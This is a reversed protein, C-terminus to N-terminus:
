TKRKGASEVAAAAARGLEADKQRSGPSSGFFFGNAQQANSMLWQVAAGVVSGVTAALGADVQLGGPRNLLQFCGYLVAFVTGYSAVNILYGLRLVGVNDGHAQRANAADSIYARETEADIRKTEVGAKIAETKLATEAELIRARLEPPVGNAMIGALTAEDEVPDGSARPGLVKDALIKVAGGWLPGGALAALGPAVTALTSKWDFAM